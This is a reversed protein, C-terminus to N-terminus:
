IILLSYKINKVTVIGPQDVAQHSTLWNMDTATLRVDAHDMKWENMSKKVSNRM